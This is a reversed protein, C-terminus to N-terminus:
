GAPVVSVSLGRAALQEQYLEARERHTVLVAAHGRTSAALVAAKAQAVELPTLEVLARVAHSPPVGDDALM